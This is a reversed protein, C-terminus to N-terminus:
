FACFPPPMGFMFDPVYVVRGSKEAYEDALLRPNILKWGFLDSIIVIIGPKSKGSAPPKAIYTPLNAITGEFLDFGAAIVRITYKGSPLGVISYAGDKDTQAVKVVNNPGTVTVTAGPVAAGSPDLVSGKLSGPAQAMLAASMALVLFVVLVARKSLIM